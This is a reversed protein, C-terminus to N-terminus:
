SVQLAALRERTESSTQTFKRAAKRDKRKQVLTELENGNEDVARFAYYLEEQM